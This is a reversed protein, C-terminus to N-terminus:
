FHFTSSFQKQPQVFSYINYQKVLERLPHLLRILLLILM